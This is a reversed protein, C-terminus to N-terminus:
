IDKKMLRERLNTRCTGSERLTETESEKWTEKEVAKMNEGGELGLLPLINEEDGEVTNYLSVPFAFDMCNPTALSRALSLSQSGSLPVFDDVLILSFLAPTELYLPLKGASFFM